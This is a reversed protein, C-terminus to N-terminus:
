AIGGNINEHAYATAIVTGSMPCLATDARLAGVSLPVLLIYKM